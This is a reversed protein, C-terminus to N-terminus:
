STCTRNPRRITQLLPRRTPRHTPIPPSLRLSCAKILQHTQRLLFQRETGHANNYLLEPDTEGKAKLDKGGPKFTCDIKLNLVVTNFDTSPDGIPDEETPKNRWKM